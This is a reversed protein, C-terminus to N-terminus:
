RLVLQQLIIGPNDVVEPRGPQPILTNVLVEQPMCLIDLVNCRPQQVQDGRVFLWCQSITMTFVLFILHRGTSRDPVVATGLAEERNASLGFM